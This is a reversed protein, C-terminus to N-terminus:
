IDFRTCLYNFYNLYVVFLISEGQPYYGIVHVHLEIDNFSHVNISEIEGM